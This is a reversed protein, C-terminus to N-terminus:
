MCAILRNLSIEAFSSRKRSKKYSIDDLFVTFKCMFHLKSTMLLFTSISVYVIESALRNFFTFCIKFQHFNFFFNFPDLFKWSDCNSTSLVKTVGEGRNNKQPPPAFTRDVLVQSLYLNCWAFWIMLTSTQRTGSVM